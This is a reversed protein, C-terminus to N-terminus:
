KKSTNTLNEAKKRARPHAKDYVKALHQFDLHTYIQTTSIDAHGLLEQVARLDGSSELIHSAFSHRLKHPHIPQELGQKKRWYNLRQQVTRPSIRKGQKSIFLANMDTGTKILAIRSKLWTQLADVAKRGIPLIREKNGKGVARLTNENLDISDLNLGTLESLRLGSSYFLEMIARDRIALISDGPIELLQTLSEADLTQPLTRPSKPARIDVAPNKSIHHQRLLYQYFSRLSSLKRQLTKGSIGQRHLAAVWNRIALSDASLIKQNDPAGDGALWKSFQGLDRRYGSLTHKSYRKEHSLYDEFQQIADQM